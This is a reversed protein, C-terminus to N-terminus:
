PTQLGTEDIGGFVYLRGGSEAFGHLVSCLRAVDAAGWAGGFIRHLFSIAQSGGARPLTELIQLRCKGAPFPGIRRRM